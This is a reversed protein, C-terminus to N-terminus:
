SGCILRGTRKEIGALYGSVEAEGGVRIKDGAHGM